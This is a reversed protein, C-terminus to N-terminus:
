FSELREAIELTLDLWHNFRAELRKVGVSSDDGEAYCARIQGDLYQVRAGALDGLTDIAIETAHTDDTLAALATTIEQFTM